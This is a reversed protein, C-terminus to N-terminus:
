MVVCGKGKGSGKGKGGSGKGKGNLVRRPQEGDDAVTNLEHLMNKHEDVEQSTSAAPAAVAAATCATAIVVSTFKM